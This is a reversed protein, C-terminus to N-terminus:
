NRLRKREAAFAHRALLGDMTLNRALARHARWVRQSNFPWYTPPPNRVEFILLKTRAPLREYELESLLFAYIRRLRCLLIPDPYLPLDQFDDYLAWLTQFVEVISEDRDVAEWIAEDFDRSTSLGSAFKRIAEAMIERGSIM